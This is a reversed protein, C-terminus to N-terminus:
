KKRGKFGPLPFCVIFYPLWRFIFDLLSVIIMLLLLACITIIPISLSCMVGLSLGDGTKCDGKEPVSLPKHFPWPLVSLVLDALGIGKMRDVQGCLMDSMMFVANKDFKRLGAPSIDVPLGIRIPRAPADSDFFGAMQFPPTAESVVAEHFPTCGPREYVLRM